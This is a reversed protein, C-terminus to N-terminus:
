ISAVTIVSVKLLLMSELTVSAFVSPPTDVSSPRGALLEM